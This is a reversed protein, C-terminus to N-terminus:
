FKKEFQFNAFYKIKLQYIFFLICFIKFFIMKWKNSQQKQNMEFHLFIQFFVM